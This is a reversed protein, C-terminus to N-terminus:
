PDPLHSVHSIGSIGSSYGYSLIEWLNGVFHTFQYKIVNICSSVDFSCKRVNICSGLYVDVQIWLFGLFGPFGM